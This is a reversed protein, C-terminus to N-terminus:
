LISQCAHFLCRLRAGNSFQPVAHAFSRDPALPVLLPGFSFYVLAFWAVLAFLWLGLAAAGFGRLHMGVGLVDSAAVITFFAFVLRPNTLDSWLARPFRAARTLTLLALWPFALAGGVFMLDSLAGRGELHLANSIIGTAMVLAFYGPYLAAVREAGWAVLRGRRAQKLVPSAM